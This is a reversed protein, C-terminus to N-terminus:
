YLSIITKPVNILTHKHTHMFLYINVHSCVMHTRLVNYVVNKDILKTKFDLNVSFKYVLYKIYLYNEPFSNFRFSNDGIKITDFNRKNTSSKRQM